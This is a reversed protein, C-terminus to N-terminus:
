SLTAIQSEYSSQIDPAMEDLKEPALKACELCYLGALEIKPFDAGETEPGLLGIGMNNIVINATSIVAAYGLNEITPVLQQELTHHFRSADAIQDDLKWKKVVLGGVSMHTFYQFKEEEVEHCRRGSARAEDVVEQYIEPYQRYIVLKGVDHLMGGIFAEEPNVGAVGEAIKHAAIATAIAHNWLTRLVPNDGSFLEGTAAVLVINRLQRMGMRTISDAISKIQYRGAYFPSNATTLLRQTLSPDKRILDEIQKNTVDDDNILELAQTAVVSLTPLDQDTIQIDLM